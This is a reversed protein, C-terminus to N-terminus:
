SPNICASKIFLNKGEFGIGYLIVEKIGHEVFTQVYKKEIIQDLANQPATETTEASRVLKFEIIIGPKHAIKPLLLIDYRGLGSEKNSSVKYTKQLMVLLGLVFNHYSKENGSLDFFSMSNLVFGQLLRAFIETDGEIVAQLLNSAQDDGVSETFINEILKRYPYLTEQNPIVLSCIKKGDQLECSTYTLYGTFLLSSWVLENRYDLEPFLMSEEIVQQVSEGNLLRELASKISAPARAILRKVLTNNSTHAWYTDLEGQFSVCNLVSWPNYIGTTIGVTYGDYWQTIANKANKLDYYELLRDVEEQTFGFKDAVRDKTLNFIQLNNLGTFIGSKALMLIGTIVGKELTQNDKFAGTLLPRMFDIIENYFGHLYASQIPVDYEDLLVIVKQKHYRHLFKVLTELSNTVEVYSAQTKRIRDFLDKEFPEFIESSLVYKHRNFEDAIKIVFSEYTAKYTAHENNKFSLAIVPFKGQLAKYQELKWILTDIFLYDTTEKEPKEFFYRLMSLNLTKGFRRPRPILLVEGSTWVEKILLTKDVYYSNNDILNKYDSQGIPLLKKM